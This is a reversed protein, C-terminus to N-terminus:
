PTTPAEPRDALLRMRWRKMTDSMSELERLERQLVELRLSRNEAELLEIRVEAAGVDSRLQRREHSAQWLAADLMSALFVLALALGAISCPRRMASPVPPAAERRLISM